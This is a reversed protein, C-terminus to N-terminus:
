YLTDQRWENVGWKREYLNLVDPLQHGLDTYLERLWDWAGLVHEGYKGIDTPVATQKWPKNKLCNAALGLEYIIQWHLEKFSYLPTRRSGKLIHEVLGPEIGSIISAEVLFHLADALEEFYHRIWPTKEWLTKWQGLLLWDHGQEVSEMAEALEETVRWFLDKLRYQVIRDDLSYPPGALVHAGNEHEIVDYKTMLQKQKQFMAEVCNVEGKSQFDDINM